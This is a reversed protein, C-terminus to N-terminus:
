IPCPKEGDFNAILRDFEKITAQLYAIRDAKNPYADFLKQNMFALHKGEASQLNFPRKRKPFKRKKAM